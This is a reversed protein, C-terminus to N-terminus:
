DGEERSDRVGNETCIDRGILDEMSDRNGDDDDDDDDDDDAAAAAAAAAAVILECCCDVCIESFQEQGCGSFEDTLLLLGL